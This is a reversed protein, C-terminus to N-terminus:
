RLGVKGDTIVFEARRATHKLLYRKATEISINLEFAAEATAERVSPSSGDGCLATILKVFETEAVSSFEILDLSKLTNLNHVRERVPVPEVLLSGDGLVKMKSKRKAKTM